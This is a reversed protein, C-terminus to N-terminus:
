DLPGCDLRQGATLQVVLDCWMALDKEMDARDAEWKRQYEAWIKPGIKAMARYHLNAFVHKFIQSLNFGGDLKRGHM